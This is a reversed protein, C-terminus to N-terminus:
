RGQGIVSGGSSGMPWRVRVRCRDLVWSTLVCWPMVVSIAGGRRGSRRSRVGTHSPSGPAASSRDAAAATGPAPTGRSARRILHGRDGFRGLCRDVQGRRHRQGAQGRRGAALHEDPDVPGPDFLDVEVGDGRERGARALRRHEPGHGCRERRRLRAALSWGGFPAYFGFQGGRTAHAVRRVARWSPRVRVASGWVASASAVAAALSAAPMATGSSGRSIVSSTVGSDHMESSAVWPPRIATRDASPSTNAVRVPM